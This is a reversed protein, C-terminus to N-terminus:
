IEDPVDDVVVDSGPLVVAPQQCAERWLRIAIQVDPV